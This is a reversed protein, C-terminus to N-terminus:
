MVSSFNKRYIALYVMSIMGEFVLFYLLYFITDSLGRYPDIKSTDLYEYIASFYEPRIMNIKPDFHAQARLIDIIRDDKLLDAESGMALDDAYYQALFEQDNVFGSGVQTRVSDLYSYARNQAFSSEIKGVGDQLFGVVLIFPLALLIFKWAKGSIVSYSRRVCEKGSIDKDADMLIFTAFATRVLVVLSWVLTFASLLIFAGGFFISSISWSDTLSAGSFRAILALIIIGLLWVVLPILLYWGIWATISLYRKMHSWSFYLNKRIPLKEGKIYGDHVRSLLFYSYTFFFLFFALVICFLFVLALLIPWASIIQVLLEPSASGSSFFSEMLTPDLGSVFIRLLVIGVIVPIASFIVSALFAFAYIVVKSLTWHGFNRYVLLTTLAIQKLENLYTYLKKM